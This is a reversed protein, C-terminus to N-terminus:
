VQLLPETIHKAMASLQEDNQSAIQSTFDDSSASLKRLSAIAEFRVEQKEHKLFQKVEANHKEPDGIRSLTKLFAVAIRDDSIAKTKLSAVDDAYQYADLEGLCKLAFIVLEPDASRLLEAMAPVAQMQRFQLAMSMSFLSVSHNTSKFWRSFDPLNKKEQAALHHYINIKIWDTIKGSYSDLFSLPNSKNLKAMAIFSEERLLKNKSALNPEIFSIFHNCELEALERIGLAKKRWSFSRLKKYSNLHLDLSRYLMCLSQASAGTLNKKLERIQNICIQARFSSGNIIKQIESLRFNSLPTRESTFQLETVVIMNLIEQFQRKAKAEQTSRYNKSLRSVFISLVMVVGISFLVTALLVFFLEAGSLQWPIYQQFWDLIM